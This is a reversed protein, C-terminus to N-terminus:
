STVYLWRTSGQSIFYLGVVNPNPPLSVREQINFPSPTTKSHQTQHLDSWGPPLYVKGPPPSTTVSWTLLPHTNPARPLVSSGRGKSFTSTFGSQSVMQKEKLDRRLLRAHQRYIWHSTLPIRPLHDELGAPPQPTQLIGPTRSCMWIGLLCLSSSDQVYLSGKGVHM